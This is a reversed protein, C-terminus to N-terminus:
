KHINQIGATDWVQMKIIDNDIKITKIRFDVGITSVYSSTFSWDAYRLLLCSKGVGSDGIIIVKILYDYTNENNGKINSVIPRQENIRREKNKIMISKSSISSQKTQKIDHVISKFKIREVLSLQLTSCLDQLDQAEISRLHRTSLGLSKLRPHIHLLDEKQLNTILCNMEKEEQKEEQKDEEEQLYEKKEEWENHNEGQEDTELVAENSM